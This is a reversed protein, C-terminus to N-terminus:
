ALAGKGEIYQHLYSVASKLRPNRGISGAKSEKIFDEAIELVLAIAEELNINIKEEENKRLVEESNNCPRGLAVKDGRKKLEDKNVKRVADRITSKEIEVKIKKKADKYITHSELVKNLGESKLFEEQYIQICGNDEFQRKVEEEVLKKLQSEPKSSFGTKKPTQEMLVTKLEQMLEGLEQAVIVQQYTANAEPNKSVHKELAEIPNKLNEEHNNKTATAKTEYSFPM